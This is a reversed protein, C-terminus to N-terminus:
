HLAFLFKDSPLIHEFFDRQAIIKSKCQYFAYTIIHEIMM